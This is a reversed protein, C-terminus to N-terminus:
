KPNKKEPWRFAARIETLAEHGGPVLHVRAIEIFLSKQADKVKDYYERVLLVKEEKTPPPLDEARKRLAAWEEALKKLEPHAAKATDADSVNKLKETIKDMAALMAKIVGRQEDVNGAGLSFGAFVALAALFGRWTNM